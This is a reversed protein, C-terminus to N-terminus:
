LLIYYYIIYYPTLAADCSGMYPYRVLGLTIILEIADWGPFQIEYDLLRDVLFLVHYSITMSIYTCIPLTLISKLFRWQKKLDDLKFTCTCMCNFSRKRVKTNRANRFVDPSLWYLYRATFLTLRKKDFSFMAFIILNGWRNAYSTFRRDSSRYM